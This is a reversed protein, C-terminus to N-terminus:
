RAKGSRLLKGTKKDWRVTRLRLRHDGHCDTCVTAETNTKDPGAKRRGSQWRAIVKEPPVDHTTHCKRCAQDIKDAPYMRDPPTTNNEHNRHAYSPGHCDVCGVNKAAHESALSEERYNAHCVFCAMNDALARTTSAPSHKESEPPEDLLLPADKDIVLPPPTDAAASEDSAGSIIKGARIGPDNTRGCSLLAAAASGALAVLVFFIRQNM